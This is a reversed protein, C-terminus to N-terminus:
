EVVGHQEPPDPPRIWLYGCNRCRVVDVDVYEFDVLGCTPCREIRRPEESM